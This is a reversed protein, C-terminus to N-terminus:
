VVSIVSDFDVGTSTLTTRLYIFEATKVPKVYVDVQLKNQDILSAPNNTEDCIVRYDYLGERSTIERLYNDIGSYILTRNKNNNFEYLFDQLFLMLDRKIKLILRSVNVRNLASTGGDLTKQGEITIGYRATKSVWNIGRSYLIDSEAKEWIHGLEVGLQIGRRPGAPAYWQAAQADNYAYAGAIAGAAPVYFDTDNYEDKVKYYMAYAAAQASKPSLTSLWGAAGSIGEVTWTDGVAPTVIAFADGRVVAVEIVKNIVDDTFVSPIILDITVADLPILKNYAAIVDAETAATYSNNALTVLTPTVLPVDDILANEKASGSLLQSDRNLVDEIYISRGQGDKAGRIVSVRHEEFWPDSADLGTGESDLKVGAQIGFTGETDNVDFIKIKITGGDHVGAYKTYIGVVNESSPTSPRIDLGASIGIPVAGKLAEVGGFKSDGKPRVFYCTRGLKFWGLLQYFAPTETPNVPRGHLQVYQQLGTLPTLVDSPGWKASAAFGLISSDVGAVIQSLDRQQYFVGPGM